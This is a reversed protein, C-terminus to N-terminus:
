GRKVTIATDTMRITGTMDTTGTMANVISVSRRAQLCLEAGGYNRRFERLCAAISMAAIDIIGTLMIAIVPIATVIMIGTMSGNLIGTM